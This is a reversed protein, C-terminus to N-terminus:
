PNKNQARREATVKAEYDAKCKVCRIAFPFARLRDRPILCGCVQCIGYTKSQIARLADDINALLKTQADAITLETTRNSTNAGDEEINEEDHSNLITCKTNVSTTVKKREELIRKRFEELEADSFHSQQAGDKPM